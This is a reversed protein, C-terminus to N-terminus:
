VVVVMKPTEDFCSRLSQMASAPVEHGCNSAAVNQKNTKILRDTRNRQGSALLVFGFAYFSMSPAKTVVGTRTPSPRLNPEDSAIARWWRMDILGEKRDENTERSLILTPAHARINKNKRRSM